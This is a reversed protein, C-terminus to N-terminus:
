MWPQFNHENWWAEVDEQKPMDFVEKTREAMEILRCVQKFLKQMKPCESMKKAIKMGLKHLKMQVGEWSDVGLDEFFMAELKRAHENTLVKMGLESNVAAMQSEVIAKFAEKIEYVDEFMMALDENKIWEAYGDQDFGSAWHVHQADEMTHRIATRLRQGLDSNMIMEDHERKAVAEESEGWAILEPGYRAWAKELGAGIKKGAQEFEPKMDALTEM